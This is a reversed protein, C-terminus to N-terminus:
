MYICDIAGNKLLYFRSKMGSLHFFRPKMPAYDLNDVIGHIAM